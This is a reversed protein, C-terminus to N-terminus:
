IIMKQIKGDYEKKQVLQSQDGQGLKYLWVTNNMSTSLYQAGLAILQPECELGINALAQQDKSNDGSSNLNIISVEKFSTLLSVNNQYESLILPVNTM